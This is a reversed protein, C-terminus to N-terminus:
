EKRLVRPLRRAMLHIMALKVFAESSTTTAEYDKSLRRWRGLWAFTREVRWRFPIVEFKTAGPRKAKIELRLRNRARLSSVWAAIGGNYISDAVILRLRSFRNKLPGLVLEAGDRDQISAAHVVVSLILGFGDV